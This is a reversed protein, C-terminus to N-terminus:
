LQKPKRATLILMVYLSLMKINVSDGSTIAGVLDNNVISQVFSGGQYGVGWKTCLISVGIEFVHLKDEKSLKKYELKIPENCPQTYDEYFQKVIEKVITIKDIERM